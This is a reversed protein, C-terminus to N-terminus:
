FQFYENKSKSVFGFLGSPRDSKSSEQGQSLIAQDLYDKVNKAGDQPEGAKSVLASLYQRKPMLSLALKAAKRESSLENSRKQATM